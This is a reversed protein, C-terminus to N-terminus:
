VLLILCGADNKEFPLIDIASISSIFVFLSSLSVLSIDIASISSISIFLSLCIPMEAWVMYSVSPEQASHHIEVIYIMSSICWEPQSGEIHMLYKSISPM